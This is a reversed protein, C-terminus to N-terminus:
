YGWFTRSSIPGPQNSYGVEKMAKITKGANIMNYTHTSECVIMGCMEIAGFDNRFGSSRGPRPKRRPILYVRVQSVKDRVFLMNVAIKRQEFKKLLRLLYLAIEDRKGVAVFTVVPWPRKLQYVRFTNGAIIPQGLTQAKEVPLSGRFGYLHFHWPISAGAGIGNFGYKFEKSRETLRLVFDIHRKILNQPEHRLSAITVQDRLIPFPNMLVVYKMSDGPGAVRMGKQAAPTNPVCIFCGDNVASPDGKMKTGPFGIHRFARWLIKRAMLLIGNYATSKEEVMSNNRIRGEAHLLKILEWRKAQPTRSIFDKKYKKCFDQIKYRWYGPFGFRASMQRSVLQRICGDIYNDTQARREIDLYYKSV